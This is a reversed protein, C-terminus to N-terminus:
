SSARTSRKGHLDGLFPTNEQAAQFEELKGDQIAQYLNAKVSQLIHLREKITHIGEVDSPKIERFQKVLAADVAEFAEKLDKNDLLREIRNKKAIKQAKTLPKKKM